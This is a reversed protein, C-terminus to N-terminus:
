SPTFVMLFVLFSNAINTATAIINLKLMVAKAAGAGAVGAQSMQSM